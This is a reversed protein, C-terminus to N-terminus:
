LESNGKIPCVWVLIEAEAKSLTVSKTCSVKRLVQPFVRLLYKHKETPPFDVSVSVCAM